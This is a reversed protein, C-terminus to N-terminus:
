LIQIFLERCICLAVLCSFISLRVVLKFNCILVVTTHLTPPQAFPVGKTHIHVPVAKKFILDATYVLLKLHTM